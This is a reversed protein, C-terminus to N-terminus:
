EPNVKNGSETELRPYEDKSKTSPNKSNVPKFPEAKIGQRM